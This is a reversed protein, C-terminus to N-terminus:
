SPPRRYQPRIRNDRLSIGTSRQRTPHSAEPRGHSVGGDRHHRHRRSRRATRYCGRGRTRTDYRTRHRGSLNRRTTPSANSNVVARTSTSSTERPFGLEEAVAPTRLTRRFTRSVVFWLRDMDDDREIVNRAADEDTEALASVADELMAMAIVKMQSIADHISMQSANLLDQVVIKKDTEEVIELGVLNQTTTRIARRKGPTIHHTEITITNFGNVYMAIIARMLEDDSRTAIDLRGEIGKRGRRPTLVLGTSTPSFRSQVGSRSTTKTRGTRRCPFRSRPDEPSRFKGHRWITGKEVVVIFKVVLVYIPLFINDFITRHPFIYEAFDIGCRDVHTIGESAM